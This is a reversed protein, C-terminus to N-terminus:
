EKYTAIELTLHSIEAQLEINDRIYEVMAPLGNWKLTEESGIPTYSYWAGGRTIVKFLVAMTIIDKVTDFDGPQFGKESNLFYYDGMAVAKPAAAKNKEMLYKNVQGVKTKGKLGEVSEEIWEARAVLVRQYFAYNKAKGGPTTTPTGYPSFTGIADRLQNVFFGIYPRDTTFTGGIKRFFQGTRRAGLTMTNQDMGKEEEESASLAPYSDLVLCDFQNSQAAEMLMQYALEMNSTPMVVVRSNDIGNKAAWEKDYHESAVWFTMFDKDLEQNTAITHLVISTKGNSEKGYVEVWQNGPWGGGLAVDLSLLGSTFKKPIFMDSATTLLPKGEKELQKNMKAVLTTVGDNLPL